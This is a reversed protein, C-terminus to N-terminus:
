PKLRTLANYTYALLLRAFERSSASFLDSPVDDLTAVIRDFPTQRLRLLAPQFYEPHKAATLEVLQLPSTGHKDTANWYIGGRGRRVYSEIRNALLIEQKRDDLLERGLSSAHDFTPAVDYIRIIEPSDWDNILEGRQAARWFLGWNEHHRDTNCVLADLLLYYALQELVYRSHKEEPFMKRIARIINDITHDSQRQKKGSDYGLVRGALVENGHELHYAPDPIFNLSASGRKGQYVALEVRAARINLVHAIEAVIKEAWDEGTMGQFEGAPTSIARAEKFLWQRLDYEFWFKNKSGLQEDDLVSDPSISIIPYTM